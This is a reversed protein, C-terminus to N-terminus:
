AKSPVQFLLQADARHIFKLSSFVNSVLFNHFIQSFLCKSYFNIFDRGWLKIICRFCVSMNEYVVMTKFVLFTKFIELLYSFNRALIFFKLRTHFIELLYSFNRVLIFFKLFTHFIELLYSFNRAFMFLKSNTHCENSTHFTQFLFFNKSVIRTKFILFTDLHLM